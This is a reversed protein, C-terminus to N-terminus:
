EKKKLRDLYAPNVTVGLMQAKEADRLANDMDGSTYYAGSRNQYFVGQEPKLKIAYTFDVIAEPLRNLMEYNLARLNYM